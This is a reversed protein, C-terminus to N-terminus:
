VEKYANTLLYTVYGSVSFNLNKADQEILKKVRPKVYAQICENCKDEEKKTPRGRGRNM